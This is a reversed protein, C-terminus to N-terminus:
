FFLERYGEVLDKNEVFQVARKRAGDCWINFSDQEMNLLSNLANTYASKNNLDLDYGCKEQELNRWPTQDSILVPRATSLSELIVHGFNEGRTPMYLVHYQQITEGVLSAEVTGKYTVKINSPLQSIVKECQKWYEADYIQGYLDFSLTGIDQPLEALREIAFLTNKEPAIRALSVLKLSGKEKEINKQVPLEKKPLNDAICVKTKTGISRYIDQEEKINTAHFIVNRYLGALKCLRLFLRKKGGKVAIASQALMGRSAVIVKKANLKHAVLLPTISFKLSYIGNIYISDPNIERVLHRYTTKNQHKADAYYVKVSDSFLEWCNSKVDAYPTTETYDTNRTVIYFDYEDKLYEVMNAMSRVPGGAKYGPLFWDIFILIKKKTTM